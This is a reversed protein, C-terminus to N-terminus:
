RVFCVDSESSNIICIDYLSLGTFLRKLFHVCLCWLIAFTGFHESHEATFCKWYFNNKAKFLVLKLHNWNTSKLLCSGFSYEIKTHLCSFYIDFLSIFFRHSKKFCKSHCDNWGLFITRFWSNMTKEKEIEKMSTRSHIWSTISKWLEDFQM